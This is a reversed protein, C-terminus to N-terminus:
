AIPSMRRRRLIVLATGGLTVMAAGIGFLWWLGTADTGTVPLIPSPSATPPQTPGDTPPATPQTPSPTPQTPTPTPSPGLPRECRAEALIVTGVPIDLLPGGVITGTLRLTAQVAIAVAGDETVTEVNTLRANLAAGVLGPVTVAASATVGPTNPLLVVPDGFLELGTFSTDATQTGTQPCNVAATIVEADIVPTGLIALALDAIEANASSATEGRTASVEVVTGSATVGLAGPITIALATDTDTGGGAPATASGIVADATIVPVGAVAASLDVVVGRASADGPAALAPTTSSLAVAGVAIAMAGTASIRRTLRVNEGRSM